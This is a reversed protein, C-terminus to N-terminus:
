WSLQIGTQRVRAHQERARRRAERAGRVMPGIARSWVKAGAEWFVLEVVIVFGYLLPSTSFLSFHVFECSHISVHLYIHIQLM